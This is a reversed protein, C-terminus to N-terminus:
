KRKIRTFGSCAIVEFNQKASKEIKDLLLNLGLTDSSIHGAIVVNLNANKVKKFHEESLHMSILTRVGAKYLKDFVDVSGETGGTMEFLIKGTPRRPNGLIIRPGTNFKQAIQYEPITNLIKVVDQLLGARNAKQNFIAELYRYVHNDAPTHMNMFPMNLLRAADVPRTHNQPLVRREVQAMREQLLKTATKQAVGAQTLLDIQLRMVEPLGAYAKGEPHHAIVLDLGERQRIRDALLLEAVEIDIGVMIKKIELNPKGFLIASDPFSKIRQKDKRPDALRGFNVVQNYFNILKM